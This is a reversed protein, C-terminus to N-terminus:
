WRREPHPAICHGVEDRGDILAGGAGPRHDEIVRPPLHTAVLELMLLDQRVGAPDLVVRRSRPADTRDWDASFLVFRVPPSMAATPM